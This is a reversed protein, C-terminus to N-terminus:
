RPARNVRGVEFGTGALRVYAIGIGAIMWMERPFGAVWTFFFMALMCAVLNSGVQATLVDASRVRISAMLTKGTVTLMFLVVTALPVLGFLLAVLLYGNILDVIGQGQIMGAMKRQVTLDGFWPHQPILRLAEQFLQKRYDVNGTDITGIFPLSDIIRQGFPTFTAVTLVVLMLSAAKLVRGTGRPQLWLYALMLLVAAIWGSRTYTAFLGAWLVAYTAAITWRSKCAHTLYLCFGFGIALMMSLTLAHESTVRARLQLNRMLYSFPNVGVGWNDAVAAYFQWGRLSEFVALPALLACALAFTAMADPIARYNRITRSFALFPLMIDLLLTIEKRAVSTLSQFSLFPIAQMTCFCFLLFALVPARGPGTTPPAPDSRLLAPILVTIALLRHPSLDFIKPIHANFAPAAYLLLLFLAAPNSDRRGAWLSVAALILAYIWFVPSLFAAITVVFWVTRRTTFDAEEM